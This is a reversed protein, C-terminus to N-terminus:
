ANRTYGSAKASAHGSVDDTVATLYTQSIRDQWTLHDEDWLAWLFGLALTGASVLYGFSRWLLQRPTPENGDFAIVRLRCLMMGPTANGLCCFLAFYQTYLLALTVVTVAAGFKSPIFQGGLTSFLAWFCGFAVLLLAADLLGARRRQALSAVPFFPAGHSSGLPRAANPHSEPFDFAPQSIDIAVREARKPRLHRPQVAPTPGPAAPGPMCEAPVVRAKEFPFEPPAPEGQLRSRRARYADLRHAVESHWDPAAALNGEVRAPQGAWVSSDERKNQSLRADCFCCIGAEAKNVAGCQICTKVVTVNKRQLRSRPGM